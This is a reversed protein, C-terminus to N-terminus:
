EKGLTIPPLYIGREERSWWEGTTLPAALDTFRYLYLRARIFHPPADPFPNRGMLGLVPPSGQLLRVEFNVFWADVGANQVYFVSAPNSRLEPLLSAPDGTRSGLAAFWMQWDLRPQHPEVLLPARRVAGPKFAFEYELWNEGDNSGEVVIEPRSTTMIAFPGYFNMVRFPQVLDAVDSIFGPSRIGALLLLQFFSLVFLVAVVANAIWRLLFPPIRASRIEAFLAFLALQIRKIRRSTNTAIIRPDLRPAGPTSARNDDSRPARSLAPLRAALTSWGARLAADDLLLICLAIVLLNFFNYNGTVFIQMQLLAILAAAVFRLPRPAFIGFPVVLEIVFTAAVMAQHFEGPLHHVYWGIVNPLPQTMFHYDLATLNRWNPDGSLLKVLGSLLMLRFVLWRYLWLVLNSDRLFIAIFGVELLLADWQFQMFDQGAAVLSLYLGFVSILVLRHSFGLILLLSLLAGFIPVLQLFLDGSNLWFLTPTNWVSEFTPPPQRAIFDAVPLIGHSGYLGPMQVALSSFAIFYIVGLARLFLARTLTYAPPIM